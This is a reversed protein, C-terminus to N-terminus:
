VPKWIEIEPIIIYFNAKQYVKTMILISFLIKTQNKVKSYAKEQQRTLPYENNSTLITNLLKRTADGDIWLMSPTQM